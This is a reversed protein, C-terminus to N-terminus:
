SAGTLVTQNITFRYDEIVSNALLKRCMAEVAAEAEGFSAAELELRLYKGVRAERVHNFGLAHLAGRVTLGQPDNVAPKLTVIIEASFM